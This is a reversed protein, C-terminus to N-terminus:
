DIKIIKRLFDLFMNAENKEYSDSVGAVSGKKDFNANVVDGNKLKKLSSKNNVIYESMAERSLSAKRIKQNEEKSYKPEINGASYLGAVSAVFFLVFISVISLKVFFSYNMVALDNHLAKKNEIIAKAEYRSEIKLEKAPRNTNLVEDINLLETKIKKFAERWKREIEDDIDEKDEASLVKGKLAKKLKSQKIKKKGNNFNGDKFTESTTINFEKKLFNEFSFM